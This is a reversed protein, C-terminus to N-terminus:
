APKLHPFCDLFAKAPHQPRLYSHFSFSLIVGWQDEAPKSDQLPCLYPDWAHARMDSCTRMAMRM